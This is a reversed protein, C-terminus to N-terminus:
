DIHLKCNVYPRGAKTQGSIKEIVFGGKDTDGEDSMVDAIELFSRRFTESNTCFVTGDEDAITLVTVDDGDDKEDVFVAYMAVKVTDGDELEKIVKMGQSATLLYKEM